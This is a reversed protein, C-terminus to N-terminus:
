GLPASCESIWIIWTKELDGRQLVLRVAGFGLARSLSLASYILPALLPEREVAKWSVKSLLEPFCNADLANQMNADKQQHALRASRTGLSEEQEFSRVFEFLRHM